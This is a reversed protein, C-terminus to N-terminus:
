LAEIAADLVAPEPLGALARHVDPKVGQGDVQRDSPSFYRAITLTLVSGDEMGIVDQVTGKGYSREGVVAARGRDQLAAALLEAGSASHRDQLVALPTTDDTGVRRAREERLIRGGRGRTRLLVGDGVFLDAVIVAEDVEGGPNGRVDLVIGALGDAGAARRLEGLARQVEEGTGPRFARIRVHAYSKGHREVLQGQVTGRVPGRALTLSLPRPAPDARRQVVLDLTDGDAGALALEAEAQSLMREVPRGRLELVVDGAGLGAAAAASGPEVALIELRRAEGTGRMQVTLGTSAGDRLMAQAARREAATLYHSYGDLGSVMHKLGRAMVEAPDVPEVYRELVLDLASHFSERGLPKGADARRVAAIGAATVAAGLVFGLALGREFRRRTAVSM